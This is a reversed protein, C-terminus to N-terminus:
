EDAKSAVRATEMRELVTRCEWPFPFPCLVGSFLLFCGPCPFLVRVVRAGFAGFLPVGFKWLKPAIFM